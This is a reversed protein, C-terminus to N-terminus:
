RIKLAVEPGGGAPVVPLINTGKIIKRVREFEFVFWLYFVFVNFLWLSKMEFVFMIHEKLFSLFVYSFKIQQHKKKGKRIWLCFMKENLCFVYKKM